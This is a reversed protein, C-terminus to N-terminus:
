LSFFWLSVYYSTGYPFFLDTLSDVFVMTSYRSQALCWEQLSFVTAFFVFTVGVRRPIISISSHGTLLFYQSYHFIMLIICAFKLYKIKYKMCIFTFCKLLQYYVCKKRKNYTGINSKHM